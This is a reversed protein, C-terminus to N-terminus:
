GLRVKDMTHLIFCVYCLKGAAYLPADNLFQTYDKETFCLYLGLRYKDIDKSIVKLSVAYTTLQDTNIQCDFLGSDEYEVNTIRLVWTNEEEMYEVSYRPDNIFTYLGSSIIELPNTKM